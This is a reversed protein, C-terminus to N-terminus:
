ALLRDIVHDWTINLRGMTEYAARGMAATKQREGFFRDFGEAIARPIPATVLGNEGHRIFELTGGADYTTLTPKHAAAAELTPYGYSDEDLPVYASALCRSVHEIKSDESIWGLDLQVKDQLGKDEVLKKLQKEYALNSSAGCIRLKVPTRVFEMARVLLDQRKHGEVRCVSVIEDNAEECRFRDPALLPPYLVESGIGNFKMLRERVVESNTFVVRAERLGVTDHRKLAACLARGGASSPVSTYETHALDYYGRIHHIFWVVKNPHILSHAPPRIAILRDAHNSLDMLRYSLLNDLLSAAHENFPLYFKDVEHGYDVLKRELWDVIFRGGGRVFPVFSSALLVRM